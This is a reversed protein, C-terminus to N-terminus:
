FVPEEDPAHTGHWGDTAYFKGHEGNWYVSTRGCASSRSKALIIDREGSANGQPQNTPSEIDDQDGDNRPQKNHIFLVKDSDQEISGSDRLDSLRPEDAIENKNARHQSFRSLQSLALVTVGYEQAVRKLSMTIEGIQQNRNDGRAGHILQLYDIVILAPKHERVGIEIRRLLQQLGPPKDDVYIPFKSPDSLEGAKSILRAVEDKTPSKFLNVPTQSSLYRECFETKSMEWSFILVSGHEKAVHASIQLALATEGNSLKEKKRCLIFLKVQYIILPSMQTTCYTHMFKIETQITM